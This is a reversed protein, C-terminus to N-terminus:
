KPLKYQYKNLREQLNPASFDFPENLPIMYVTTIGDHKVVKDEIAGVITKYLRPYKLKFQKLNWQKMHIKAHKDLIEDTTM